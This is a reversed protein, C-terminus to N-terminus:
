KISFTGCGLHTQQGIHLIAALELYPIIVHPIMAFTQDGIWYGHWKKFAQEITHSRVPIDTVLEIAAQLAIRDPAALSNWVDQTTKHRGPLFIHMRSVLAELIQKLTPVHSNKETGLSFPTIWTLNNLIRQPHFVDARDFEWTLGEQWQVPMVQRRLDLQGRYVVPEWRAGAAAYIAHIDFRGWLANPRRWQPDITTSAEEMAPLVVELFLGHDACEGLLDLEWLILEDQGYTLKGPYVFLVTEIPWPAEPIEPRAQEADESTAWPALAKQWKSVQHTPMHSAIITGLTHSFEAAPVAPMRVLSRNVRWVILYRILQIPEIFTWM